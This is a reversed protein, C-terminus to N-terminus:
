GHRAIAAELPARDPGDGIITCQFPMGRAKLLGCAEVLYAIGKYEALRAVTLIRLLSGIHTIRTPMQAGPAFDQPDVGGYVVQIKATAEPCLRLLLCRNYESIPVVLAARRVKEALMTQDLYLDHAHATFSYEIGTLEAMVYAMYAAHTAFHAHIHTVGARRALTAWRVAVPFCLLSRALIGPARWCHRLTRWLLRTYRVPQCACEVLNALLTRGPRAAGFHTHATFHDVGPHPVRAREHILAFPTVQWGLRELESMERLIFTETIKPFRSMVYAIRRPAEAAETRSAAAM